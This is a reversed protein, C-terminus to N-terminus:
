KSKGLEWFAVASAASVNLSDVDYFMPIKITYDCSSITKEPLGEGESGLFLAIKAAGKVREDLLSISNDTLALAASVFGKERLLKIFLSSDTNCVTWPILFVNGMSVRVSRRYLPDSSGSTLIVADMGLAAASRFIAGVNTPNMVNDLVAIKESNDLIDTVAPLVKRKMACLMGRTLKYGTIGTLVDSSATFVPIGPCREILDKGCNEIERDEILISVPEYGANLARGIVLPSEAIFLGYEFGEFNSLKAENLNSYVELRPDSLSYIKIIEAM